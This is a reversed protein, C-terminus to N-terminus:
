GASRHAYREVISRNVINQVEIAGDAMVVLAVRLDPTARLIYFDRGPDQVRYVDPGAPPVPGDRLAHIAREVQQRDPQKLWEVAARAGDTYRIEPM